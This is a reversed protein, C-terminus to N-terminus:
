MPTPTPTPEISYTAPKLPGFPLLDSRGDSSLGVFVEAYTRRGILLPVLSKGEGIQGLSGFARVVIQANGSPLGSFDLADSTWEASSFSQVIPARDPLEVSVELSQVDGVVAQTTRGLDLKLHLSAGQAQVQGAPKVLLSSPQACGAALLFTLAVAHIPNPKM